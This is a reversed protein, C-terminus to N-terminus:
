TEDGESAAAGVDQLAIRSLSSGGAKYVQLFDAHAASGLALLCCLGLLGISKKM